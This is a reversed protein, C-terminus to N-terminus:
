ICADHISMKGKGKLLQKFHSYDETTIFLFTDTGSWLCLEFEVDQSCLQNLIDVM